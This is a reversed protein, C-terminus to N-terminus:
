TESVKFFIHCANINYALYFSDSVIHSGVFSLLVLYFLDRTPFFDSINIIGLFINVNRHRDDFCFM